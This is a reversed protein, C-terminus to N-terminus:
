KSMTQSQLDAEKGRKKLLFNVIAQEELGMEGWKDIGM